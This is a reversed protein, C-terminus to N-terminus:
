YAKIRDNEIGFQHMKRPKSKIGWQAKRVFHALREPKCQLLDSMQKCSMKYKDWLMQVCKEIHIQAMEQLLIREDKTSEGDKTEREERLVHTTDLIMLIHKELIGEEGFAGVIRLIERYLADDVKREAM